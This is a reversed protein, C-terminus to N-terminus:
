SASSEVSSIGPKRIVTLSRKSESYAQQGSSPEMLPLSCPPPIEHRCCGLRQGDFVELLKGGFHRFAMLENVSFQYVDGAISGPVVRDLYPEASGKEVKDIFPSETRNKGSLSIVKVPVCMPRVDAKKTQLLPRQDLVVFANLSKDASRAM